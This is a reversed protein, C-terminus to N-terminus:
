GRQARTSNDGTTPVDESAPKKPKRFRGQLFRRQWSVGEKRNVVEREVVQLELVELGASQFVLQAEELSFFHSLTGNTRAFTNPEVLRHTNFRKEAHDDVCYDRFFFVGGDKMCAVVRKLVLLHERVPISCLVFIM